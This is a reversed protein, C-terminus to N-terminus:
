SSVAKGSVPGDYDPEPVQGIVGSNFFFRIKMLNRKTPLLGDYDGIGGVGFTSRPHQLQLLARGVAEARVSRLVLFHEPLGGTQRAL